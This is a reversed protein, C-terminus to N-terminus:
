RSLDYTDLEDFKTRLQRLHEVGMNETITGITKKVMDASQGVRETDLFIRIHGSDQKTIEFISADGGVSVFGKGSDDLRVSSTVLIDCTFTGIVLRKYDM